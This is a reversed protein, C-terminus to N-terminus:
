NSEEAKEASRKGLFYKQRKEVDEDGDVSEVSRKGLFYRARKLLDDLNSSSGRKGLFYKARKGLFYKARKDLDEDALEIDDLDPEELGDDRKGLFPQRMARKGLFPQRMGRKGLFPQRMGRKWDEELDEDDFDYERKGLFFKSPRKGLFYKARKDLEEQDLENDDYAHRKWFGADRKWFGSDRKLRTNTSQEAYARCILTSLCLVGLATLLQQSQSMSVMKQFSVFHFISNSIVM